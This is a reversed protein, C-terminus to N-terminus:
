GRSAARERLREGIEAEQADEPEPRERVAARQEVRKFLAPQESPALRDNRYDVQQGEEEDGGAEDVGEEEDVAGADLTIDVREIEGYGGDGRGAEAVDNQGADGALQGSDHRHDDADREEHLQRLGHKARGLNKVFTRMAPQLSMLWIGHM